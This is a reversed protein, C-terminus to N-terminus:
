GASGPSSRRRGGRTVPRLASPGQGATGRVASEATACGDLTRLLAPGASPEFPGVLVLQAPGSSAASLALRGGSWDIRRWGAGAAVVGKARHIDPRDAFLRELAAPDVPEAPRWVVSSLGHGPDQGAGAEGPAAAPAADGIGFLRAPGVEGFRTEVLDAPGAQAQVWARLPAADEAPLLDLKNLALLDAAQMQQVVLAGVFKDAARARVTAADALVATWAPRCGPWNGALRMVRAPDAVGSAEVVIRDPPPDRETQVQLAAGLDDAIACCVCGNTLAVTDGGHEAILGADINVAGFDNVLVALRLGHDAALLANLCTTKGAGLYGGIVTVPIPQRATM